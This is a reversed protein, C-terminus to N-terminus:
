QETKSKYTKQVVTEYIQFKKCIYTKVKKKKCITKSDLIM